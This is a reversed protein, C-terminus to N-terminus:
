NFTIILMFESHKIKLSKMHNPAIHFILKLCFRPKPSLNAKIITTGQSGKWRCIDQFVYILLQFQLYKISLLKIHNHLYSNRLKSVFVGGQHFIFYDLNNDLDNSLFCYFNTSLYLHVKEIM